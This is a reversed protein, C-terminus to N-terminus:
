WRRISACSLASLAAMAEAPLAKSAEIRKSAFFIKLLYTEGGCVVSKAMRYRGVSPRNASVRRRGPSISASCFSQRTIIVPGALRAAMSLLRCIPKLVSAISFREESTQLRSPWTFFSNEFNPSTTSAVLFDISAAARM